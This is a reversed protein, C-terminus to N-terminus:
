AKRAFIDLPSGGAQQGQVRPTESDKGGGLASALKMGSMLGSAGGMLAQQTPDYATSATIQANGQAGGQMGQLYNQGLQSKQALADNGMKAGEMAQGTAGQAQQGLNTMFQRTSNLRDLNKAQRQNAIDMQSKALMENKNGALGAYAQNAVGSTDMGRSALSKALSQEQQGSQRAIDGSAQGFSERDDKTLGFGQNALKSQEQTAQSLAGGQGFLQALMPNSQVSQTADAQSLGQTTIGQGAGAMSRALEGQAGGGGTFANGPSQNQGKGGAAGAISGVASIIMPAAAILAPPM